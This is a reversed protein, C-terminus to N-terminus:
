YDGRSDKAPVMALGLKMAFGASDFGLLRDLLRTSVGGRTGREGISPQRDLRGMETNVMQVHEQRIFTESGDVLLEAGLAPALKMAQALYQPLFATQVNTYGPKADAQM